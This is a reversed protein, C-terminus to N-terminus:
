DFLYVGDEKLSKVNFCNPDNPLIQWHTLSAGDFTPKYIKSSTGVSEWIKKRLGAWRETSRWRMIRIMLPDCDPILRSRDIKFYALIWTDEPPFEEYLKTWKNM